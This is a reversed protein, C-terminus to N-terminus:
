AIQVNHDMIEAAVQMVESRLSLAMEAREEFDALTYLGLTNQFNEYSEGFHEKEEESGDFDIATQCLPRILLMWGVAERGYGEDVLERTGDVVPVRAMERAFHDQGFRTHAVRSSCDFAEALNLYMEEVQTDSLDRCGMISLISDHLDLRNRAELLTKANRFAKRFTPNGLDAVLLIQAYTVAAYALSRVRERVPEVPLMDATAEEQWALANLCRRQVWQRQSYSRAVREHLQQLQGGTDYLVGPSAVHCASWYTGLVEQWNRFLKYHLAAFDVILDHHQFRRHYPDLDFDDDVDLLGWVDVDSTPPWLDTMSMWNISGALIAGRCTPLNSAQAEMWERALQRVERVIM